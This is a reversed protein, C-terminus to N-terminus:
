QQGFIICKTKFSDDEHNTSVAVAMVFKIHHLLKETHHHMVLHKLYENM